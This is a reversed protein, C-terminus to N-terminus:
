AGRLPAPLTRWGYPVTKAMANAPMAAPQVLKSAIPSHARPNVCSCSAVRWVARNLPRYIRGLPDAMQRAKCCRRRHCSWASKRCHWWWGRWRTEATTWLVVMPRGSQNRLGLHVLLRIFNRRHTGQEVRPVEVARQNGGNDFVFLRIIKENGFAILGGQFCVKPRECGLIKGRRDVRPVFDASTQCMPADSSAGGEIIEHCEGVEALDKPQLALCGDEFRSLHSTFGDHSQTAPSQRTGVSERHSAARCSGKRRGMNRYTQEFIEDQRRHSEM